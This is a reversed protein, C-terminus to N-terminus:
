KRTFCSIIHKVLKKIYSKFTLKSYDIKYEDGIEIITDGTVCKGTQRSQMIVIEHNAPIITDSVEDSGRVARGNDPKTSEIIGVIKSKDTPM